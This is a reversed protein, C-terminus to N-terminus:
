VLMLIKISVSINESKNLAALQLKYKPGINLVIVIKLLLISRSSIISITIM